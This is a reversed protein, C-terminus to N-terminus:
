VLPGGRDFGEEEFHADPLNRLLAIEEAKEPSFVLAENAKAGDPPMMKGTEEISPMYQEAVLDPETPLTERVEDWKAMRKPSAMRKPPVMRKPPALALSPPYEGLSAIALPQKQAMASYYEKEPSVKQLSEATTVPEKAFLRHFFNKGQIESKKFKLGPWTGWHGMYPNALAKLVDVPTGNALEEKGSMTHSVYSVRLGTVILTFVFGLGYLSRLSARGKRLAEDTIGIKRQSAWDFRYAVFMGLLASIAYILSMTVTVSLDLAAKEFVWFLLLSFGGTLFGSLLAYKLSSSFNESFHITGLTKKASFKGWIWPRLFASLFFFAVAAAHAPLIAGWLLNDLFWNM